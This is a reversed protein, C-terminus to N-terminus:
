IGLRARIGARVPAPIRKYARYALPFRKSLRDLKSMTVNEVPFDTVTKPMATVRKPMATVGQRSGINEADRTPLVRRTMARYEQWRPDVRLPFQEDITEEVLRGFRRYGFLDPRILHRYARGAMARLSEVDGLKSLVQEANSFDKELPIYHTDPELVGSYRGRFLIMPTMMMATEFVRPSIQGMDFPAELPELAMRLEEYTPKRGNKAVFEEVKKELEGDFDFANSGSESGLMTRSSGLFEFWRAGYIRSQEDMAIDHPIGRSSCLQAMRRGIEYKDFGLRGYKAGIDRGRYAVHVKRAELPVIEPRSELLREPMYGTLAHILKLGPIESAPYALHWYAPPVPTILVHFGLLRMERHLRATRDYDDQVAIVKLGHFNMVAQKYSDSVYNDFILRACYSQFLVDYENIDFNVQGGHTVHVYSVDFKTFNKLALLYEMTTPVYTSASSYAVLVRKRRVDKM